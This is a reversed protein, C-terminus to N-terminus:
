NMHTVAAACLSLTAFCFKHSFDIEAKMTTTRPIEGTRLFLRHPRKLDKSARGHPPISSSEQFVPLPWCPTCKPHLQTFISSPNGWGTQRVFPNGRAARTTRPVTQGNTSWFTRSLFGIRTSQRPRQRRAKADFNSKSRSPPARASGM